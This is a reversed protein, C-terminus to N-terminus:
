NVETSCLESYDPIDNLFSWKQNVYDPKCCYHSKGNTIILFDAKILLNYGAAQDFVKQSLSVNIAKCEVLVIAKGQKNYLVIDSRKDQKNQTFPMELVILSAPFKKYEVLYKVFNQRVWEEPSLILYKKRIEDFIFKKDGESKFTFNFEPLNLRPMM